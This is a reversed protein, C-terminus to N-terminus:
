CDDVPAEIAALWRPDVTFQAHVTSGGIEQTIEILYPGDDVRRDVETFPWKNETDPM